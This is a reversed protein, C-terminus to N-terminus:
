WTSKISTPAFTTISTLIHSSRIIRQFLFQDTTLSVTYEWVRPKKDDRTVKGSPDKEYFHYQICKLSSCCPKHDCGRSGSGSCSPPSYGPPNWSPNGSPDVYQSSTKDDRRFVLAVVIGGVVVDLVVFVILTTQSSDTDGGGKDNKMMLMILM